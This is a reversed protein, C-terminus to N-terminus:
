PVADDTTTRRAGRLVGGCILAVGLLQVRTPRESLVLAALGLAGVQQLLPILSSIARPLWPLSSTIFLWGITQSTVALVLLWGLAQWGPALDLTGFIGGLVLSSVAASATADMLPGAVHPTGIAGRLIFLFPAYALSTGVSFAIGEVPHGGFSPRGALGSALVVGVFVVPLALVFRRTPQEGFLMWAAAAVVVVQLSGLVTAIGAGVENIAHTWFVLDIAFFLGAAAAALRASRPRRGRRRQERLALPILLPLALACRFFATTAAGRGALEVLVGASSNCLAGIAALLVPRDGTRQRWGAIPALREVDTVAIRLAPQVQPLNLLDTVFRTGVLSDGRHRRRRTEEARCRRPEWVAV